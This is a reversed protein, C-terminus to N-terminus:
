HRNLYKEMVLASLSPTLRASLARELAECNTFIIHLAYAKMTIHKLDGYESMILTPEQTLTTNICKLIHIHHLNYIHRNSDECMRLPSKKKLQVKHVKHVFM